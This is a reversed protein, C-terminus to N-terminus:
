KQMEAIHEASDFDSGKQIYQGALCNPERQRRKGLLSLNDRLLVPIGLRGANAEHKAFEKGNDAMITHIIDKYPALVDITMEVLPGAEKGTLKRILM